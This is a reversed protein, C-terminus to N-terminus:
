RPARKTSVYENFLKEFTVRDNEHKPTYITLTLGESENVSFSNYSLTFPNGFDSYVVKVGSTNSQLNYDEWWEQFEKSDRELEQVVENFDLNDSYKGFNYRFNALLNKAIGEWDAFRNRYSENMFMRYVNNRELNSMKSYDGFLASAEENWSLTDFRENTIYAPLYTLSNLVIELESPVDQTIHNESPMKQNALEFVYKREVDNLKFTNALSEIVQISVNIERGQELWTYWTLSVGSLLAVEERKLGKVRRNSMISIDFEEASSQERRKKFFAGLEKRKDSM